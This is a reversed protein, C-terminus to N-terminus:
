EAELIDFMDPEAPEQPKMETATAAPRSWTREFARWEDSYTLKIGDPPRYLQAFPLFGMEWVARCRKEAALMDYRAPELLVYCRLKHRNLKLRKLLLSAQYLEELDKDTDAAMWIEQIPHTLRRLQDVHWRTLRAAELGGKFWAGRKQTNLMDIARSFHPDSCALLNDDQVIWGPPIPEIEVLPPEVLCFPCGNPCRRSTFTIGQKVYRGPTFKPEGAPGDIGPGGLKVPVDPYISRWARQLSEGWTRDWTFVISIHVEDVERRCTSSYEMMAPHGIRVLDDDPTYSTRRPFVRLIKM